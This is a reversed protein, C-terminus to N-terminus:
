LHTIAKRRLVRLLWQPRTSRHTEPMIGSSRHPDQALGPSRAPASPVARRVPQQTERLFAQHVVYIGAPRWRRQGVVLQWTDGVRRVVAPHMQGDCKTSESLQAPGEESFTQRPNRPNPTIENVSLLLQRGFRALTFV